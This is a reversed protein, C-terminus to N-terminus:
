RDGGDINGSHVSFAIAVVQPNDEWAEGPKSGHLTDWLKAFAGRPTRALMNTEAHPRRHEDVSWAGAHAWKTLGEAGFVASIMGEAQADDETINQLAEARVATVQLWIRSVWRPMHISPRWKGERGAELDDVWVDWDYKDAHPHDYNMSGAACLYAADNMLSWRHKGARYLIGPMGYINVDGFAERVYLRDGAECKALPSSSLRRTQSKVSALLALVMAESFIVPRDTM